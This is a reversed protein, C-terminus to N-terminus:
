LLPLQKLVLEAEDYCKPIIVWLDFTQSHKAINKLSKLKPNPLIVISIEWFEASFINLIIKLISKIM